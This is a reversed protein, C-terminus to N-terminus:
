PQLGAIEWSNGRATYRWRHHMRSPRGQWFEVEHISVLYGGWHEPRPIVEVEAFRKTVAALQSELEKGGNTRKSQDSAWAGIQSPRPRSAFYADSDMSPLKSVEGRIRVQRELAPWYFTLAAFPHQALQKGKCSLQNTYFVVGEEKLEKALVIRADPNGFEDVTSLCMANFESPDVASAEEMWNRLLDMPNNTLQSRLLMHQEYEKRVGHLDNTM